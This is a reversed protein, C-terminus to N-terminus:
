SRFVLTTGSGAKVQWYLADTGDVTASGSVIVPKTVYRSKPLRWVMEQLGLPHTVTFVTRGNTANFSQTWTVAMRRTMFDALRPMTYWSFKNGKNKAYTLMDTLVARWQNAGPPHAYVLRSTNQTLSFDILDHYWATVDAKPVGYEQWEEYTAYLGQPTVPFVWISPNRLQGDRYQRTAGLGTHGGYYTAVVGQKELWDMAWTPNNGEPASYSRSAKGTVGDVSQRNLVLCQLFNDVNVGTNLCAGGTSLLANTESAKGGYFDHIWGGHAGVSHGATQFTKLFQKATANSPLNWGLGDKAVIADPGATMEMSFLAKPDNFVNLKILNATPAQAAKSDLHWDLTMGAVGNPMSSLRAMGLVNSAFYHLFGHMMLADTRGKLYTLPLNVFLVQGAGVPNVGAVLGFQPSTAVVKQGALDGFNGQTVYTPYILNGLLYGHYADLPDVTVASATVGARAAVDSGSSVDVSSLARTRTANGPAYAKLARGLNIRVSRPGKPVASTAYRMEAYQQPDFGRVGGPDAPSVPLYLASQASINAAGLLPSGTTAGLTSTVAAKSVDSAVGSTATAALDTFAVSKGPPVLLSRMTSRLATVPGLGTTKDRLAEYLVYDVGALASLRSKPVPYVPVGNLLTLAGFDYVLMTRGGAQTYSTVAAVIEDSALAHLSDPLILGAYGQAATGLALFQADTVARIRIGEEAAADMWAAVGPDAANFGDPLLLLLLLGPDAVPLAQVGVAVDAVVASARLTPEVAVSVESDGQTTTVVPTLWTSETTGVDAQNQVDVMPDTAVSASAVDSTQGGGCAVLVLSACVALSSMRVVSGKFVALRRPLCCLWSSSTQRNVTM